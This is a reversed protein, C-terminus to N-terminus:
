RETGAWVLTLGEDIPSSGVFQLTQAQTFSLGTIDQPTLETRTGGEVFSAWVRASTNGTRVALVDIRRTRPQDGTMGGLTLLTASGLDIRLFAPASQANAGLVSIECTIRMAKPIGGALITTAWLVTEVNAAGTQSSPPDAKFDKFM